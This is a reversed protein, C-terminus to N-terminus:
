RPRPASGTPSRRVALALRADGGHQDVLAEVGAGDQERARVGIPGSSVAGRARAAGPAREPASTRSSVRRPRSRPVSSGAAGPGRAPWAPAADERLLVAADVPRPRASAIARRTRPNWGQGPVTVSQAPRRREFTRRARTSGVARGGVRRGPVTSATSRSPRPRPRRALARAQAEELHLGLAAPGHGGGGEGGPRAERGARRRSSLGAHGGGGARRAKAPGSRRRAAASCASASRRAAARRSGGRRRALAREEVLEHEPVSRWRPASSWASPRETSRGSSGRRDRRREVIRRRPACWIRCRRTGSRAATESDTSSALRALGRARGPEDVRDQAPQRAVPAARRARVRSAVRMPQSVLAPESGRSAPRASARAARARVDRTARAAASGRAAAPRKAEVRADGVGRRAAGLGRAERGLGPEHGAGQRPALAATPRGPRALADDVDLVLARLEHRVQGRGGAQTRSAQAAGPPLAVSMASRAPARPRTTAARPRAARPERVM